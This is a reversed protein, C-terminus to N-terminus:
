VLVAKCSMLVVGGGGEGSEGGGRLGKVENAEMVAAKLGANAASESELRMKTEGHEALEADLKTRAEGAKQTAVGAEEVVAALDLKAQFLDPPFRDCM